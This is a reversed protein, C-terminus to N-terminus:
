TATLPPTEVGPVPVVSNLTRGSPSRAYVNRKPLGALLSAVRTVTATAQRVIRPRGTSFTVGTVVRTTTLGPRICALVSLQGACVVGAPAAISRSGPRAFDIAENVLAASLTRVEVADSRAIWNRM